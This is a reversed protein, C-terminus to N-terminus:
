VIIHWDAPVSSVVHTGIVNGDNMDWTAIQGADSRWLIDSKGDGNFDGTGAISWNSPMSGATPTGIIHGDNMDWIAIQGADSRWLLDTKGDGNFDGTGAMTWNSPVSAVIPTGIINGDNMDWIAIQGADSRWLIDTKGDGNFDGTGAISWNSPVSGVTPTGIINGDNMDWTAIQGADSRWLIDAKGDGNFDGTGAIKWNDPVSSVVHSSLINGDSMDWTAIQGTDSRWLIDSKGDGNFDGTGAITWNSPVSAVAPTSLIHGDNMDWIANSGADSRWLIDSKGDGNFDDHHINIDLPAHGINIQFSQAGTANGAADTLYFSFVDSNAGGATEHYSVLGNNIDAQTFSTTALGNLMLIGDAPGSAITYHLQAGSSINDGASLLSSTITQTTGAQISLPNDNGLAPPQTDAAASPAWGLVNMNSIDVSSLALATGPSGFGFVDLVSFDATDGGNVKTAGSYQNNFPLLMQKGDVSFYAAMGDQGDSFDHVGPASYRFLDMTSWLVHGVSDTAKGLAGIRGMAGETLEHEVAAIVDQGYAWNFSTNLTVTDDTAPAFSTIGLMRAYAAPLSWGIGGSPDTAPLSAVAAQADASTAHTALANKLTAYSIGEILSFSNEALFTGSTGAAVADFKVNLTISNTWHNAIDQEAALIDNKYAQTVNATYTNNFVIGSGAFTVIESSVSAFTTVDSLVISAGSAALDTITDHSRTAPYTPAQIDSEAPDFSDAPDQLGPVFKSKM